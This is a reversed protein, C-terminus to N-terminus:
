WYKDELESLINWSEFKGHQLLHKFSLLLQKPKTKFNEPKISYSCICPCSFIDYILANEFRFFINQMTNPFFLYWWFSEISKFNVQSCTFVLVYCALLHFLFCAFILVYCALLHFLFCALRQFPLLCTFFSALSFLFRALRYFPLLSAVQCCKESLNM